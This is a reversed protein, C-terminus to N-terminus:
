TIDSSGIGYTMLKNRLNERSIGLTKATQLQNRGKQEYVMIIYRRMAEALTQPADRNEKVRPPLDSITIRDTCFTYFQLFMNELERINGKYHYSLMHEMADSDINLKSAGPFKGPM